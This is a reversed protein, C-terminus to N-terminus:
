SIYFGLQGGYLNAQLGLPTQQYMVSGNTYINLLSYYGSEQLNVFYNFVSSPQSFDSYTNNTVFLYLITPVMSTVQPVNVFILASEYNQYYQNDFFYPLLQYTNLGPNYQMIIFNNSSINVGYNQQLYQNDILLPFVANSVTNHPFIYIPIAYLFGVSKTYSTLTPTGISYSYTGPLPTVGPTVSYVYVFNQNPNWTFIAIATKYQPYSDTIQINYTSQTPVFNLNIFNASSYYIGNIIIQNPVYNTISPFEGNPGILFAYLLLPVPISGTAVAVANVTKSTNTITVTYNTIQVNVDSQYIEPPTLNVIDISFNIDQNISLALNHLNDSITYGFNFIIVPLQNEVVIYITNLGPSLNLPVSYYNYMNYYSYTVNSVNNTDVWIYTPGSGYVTLLIQGGNQLLFQYLNPDITINTEVIFLTDNPYYQWENGTYSVNFPQFTVNPPLSTISSLDGVTANYMSTINIYYIGPPPPYSTLNSLNISLNTDNLIQVSYSYISISINYFLVFYVSSQQNQTAIYITNLGPALNLPVNNFSGIPMTSSYTVNSVNNTDVWIYTPGSGYVTLLIQGGNQLLFQYLNPDITINTEVIFLTDNPYYQWENGTYSVNFPQFTVNPPLSTISSLSGNTVNYMSTINIYYIGETQPYIRYSLVVLFLIPLLYLIKRM